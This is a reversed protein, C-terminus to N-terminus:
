PMSSGRADFERKKTASHADLGKGQTNFGWKSTTSFDPLLELRDIGPELALKAGGTILVPAELTLRLRGARWGPSTAELAEERMGSAIRFFNM